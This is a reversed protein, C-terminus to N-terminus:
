VVVLPSCYFVFVMGFIGRDFCYPVVGFGVFLPFCSVFILWCGVVLLLCGAVSLVCCVVFLMCCVVVLFSRFVCVLAVVSLLFHFSLCCDVFLM